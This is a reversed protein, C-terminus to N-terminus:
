GDMEMAEEWVIGHGRKKQTSINKKRFWFIRDVRVAKSFGRKDLWSFCFKNINKHGIFHNVICNSRLTRRAFTMQRKPTPGSSEGGSAGGGGGALGEARKTLPSAGNEKHYYILIFKIRKQNVNRLKLNIVFYKMYYKRAM